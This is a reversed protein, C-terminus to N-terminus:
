QPIYRDAQSVKYRINAFPIIDYSIYTLGPAGRVTWRWQLAVRIM